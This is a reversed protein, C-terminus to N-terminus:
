YTSFNKEVSGLDLVVEKKGVAYLNSKGNGVEINNEDYYVVKSYIDINKDSTNNLIVIMQTNNILYEKYKIQSELSDESKRCGSLLLLFLVLILYVRKM